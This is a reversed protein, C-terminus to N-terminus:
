LFFGADAQHGTRPKNTNAQGHILADLLLPLSLLVVSELAISASRSVEDFKPTHAQM